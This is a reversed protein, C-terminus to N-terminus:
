FPKEAFMAYGLPHTPPNTLPYSGNRNKYFFSKENFIEDGEGLEAALEPSLWREADCTGASAVQDVLDAVLTQSPSVGVCEYKLFGEVASADNSGLEATRALLSKTQFDVRKLCLQQVKNFRPPGSSSLPRRRCSPVKFGAALFGLAILCLEAGCASYDQPEPPAELLFSESQLLKGLCLLCTKQPQLLCTKQLM